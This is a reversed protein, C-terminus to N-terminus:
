QKKRKPWLKLAAIAYEALLFENQEIDLASVFRDYDQAEGLEGLYRAAMARVLWTQSQLFERLKDLGSRDGLRVLAQAAYVRLIQEADKQWAVTLLPTAKKRNAEAEKGGSAWVMLAEFTGFRIAPHIHAVSEHFIEYDRPDNFSALGILATTRVEPEKSWRAMEVLRERLMPDPDKALADAIVVGPNLYRNRIQYGVPSGVKLIDGFPTGDANTVDPRIKNVRELVDVLANLIQPDTESLSPVSQATAGSPGGPLRIATNPDAPLEVCGCVLALTVVFAIHVRPFRM